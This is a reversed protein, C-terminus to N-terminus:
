LILIILDDLYGIIPIFDPTLDIPSLAFLSAGGAVFKALKPTRPDRAAFWLAGADRKLTWAWTKMKIKGKTLPRRSRPELRAAVRSLAAFNFRGDLQSALGRKCGIVLFGKRIQQFHLLDFRGAMLDLWWPAPRQTLHANRGDPLRKVAPGTHVSLILLKDTISAIEDLCADLLDPEVHELVDICTVLDAPLPPGYEPFAPDYPRYDVTRFFRTGLAFQLNRKGAGYDSISTCEGLEAIARVLPAFSISARGYKVNEHLAQQQLRYEDSITVSRPRRHMEPM